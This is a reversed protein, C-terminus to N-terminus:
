RSLLDLYAQLWTQRAPSHWSYKAHIQARANENIKLRYEKSLILTELADFWGQSDKPKVKIGTEGNIVCEYPPLDTTVCAAGAMSMELYKLNSKSYNFVCDDLPMIAIDPKFHRLKYFYERLSFWNGYFLNEYKPVLDAHPFGPSREFNCFPTPLYGWFIAAVNKGYKELIKIIPEIVDDFDKHHSASGCWLIKIPGKSDYNPEPDFHNPDILNPLVKVKEPYPMTKALNDTSTWLASCNWMYLRTYELDTHDLLNSVPNWDPITWLDDDGQWVFKKGREVLHAIVESYFDPRILRNFLYIDFDEHKLPKKDATVHIGHLSLDQYLHLMPMAARYTTCARDDPIHLFIKVSM